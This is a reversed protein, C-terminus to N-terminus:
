NEEKRDLCECLPERVRGEGRQPSPQTLPNSDKLRRMSEWSGAVLEVAVYLLEVDAVKITLEGAVVVGTDLLKDLADCLSTRPASSPLRM